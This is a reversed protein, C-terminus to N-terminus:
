YQSNGNSYSFPHKLLINSYCELTPEQVFPSLFLSDSNLGYFAGKETGREKKMVVNEQEKRLVGV